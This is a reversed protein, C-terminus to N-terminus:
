TGFFTFRSEEKRRYENLFPRREDSFRLCLAAIRGRFSRRRQCGGDVRANEWGANDRRGAIEKRSAENLGRHWRRHDRRQRRRGM